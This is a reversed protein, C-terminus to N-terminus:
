RACASSRGRGLGALGADAAADDDREPQGLAHQDRRQPGAAPVAAGAALEAAHQHLLAPPLRRHRERVGPYRFDTFFAPLQTGTLLAKYVITRCSLSCVYFGPLRREEARREMERRALYLAREWPEEDAALAPRGVLVQRIM